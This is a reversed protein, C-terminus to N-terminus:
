EVRLVYLNWVSYWLCIFSPNINIFMNLVKKEDYETDNSYWIGLSSGVNLEFREMIKKDLNHSEM